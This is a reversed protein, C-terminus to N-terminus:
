YKHWETELGGLVQTTSYIPIPMTGGGASVQTYLLRTTMIELIDITEKDTAENSKLEM